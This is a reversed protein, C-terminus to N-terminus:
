RKNPIPRNLVNSAIYAVLTNELETLVTGHWKEQFEFIVCVFSLNAQELPKM